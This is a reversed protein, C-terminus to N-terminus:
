VNKSILDFITLNEPQKRQQILENAIRPITRLSMSPLTLKQHSNEFVNKLNNQKFLDKIKIYSILLKQIKHKM